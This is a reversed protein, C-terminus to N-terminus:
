YVCKVKRLTVKKVACKWGNCTWQGVSCTWVAKTKVNAKQWFADTVPLWGLLMSKMLLHHGLKTLWNSLSTGVRAVIWHEIDKTPQFLVSCKKSQCAFTAKSVTQLVHSCHPISAFQLGQTPQHLLTVRSHSSQLNDREVM